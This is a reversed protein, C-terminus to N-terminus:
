LKLTNYVVSTGDLGEPDSPSDIKIREGSGDTKYAEIKIKTAEFGVAHHDNFHGAPFIREYVLKEDAFVKLQFKKPYNGEVYWDTGDFQLKVDGTAKVNEIFGSDPKSLQPADKCSVIFPAASMFAITLARQLNHLEPSASSTKPYSKKIEFKTDNTREFM